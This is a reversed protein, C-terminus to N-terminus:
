EYYYPPYEGESARATLSERDVEYSLFWSGKEQGKSWRETFTIIYKEKGIEKASTEREIHYGDIMGDWKGINKPFDDTVTGEGDAAFAVADEKTFPPLPDSIIQFYGVLLGCALVPFLFFMKTSLQFKARVYVWRDIFAYFLAVIMGALALSMDQFLLGNALGFFGHLLVYLWTHKIFWKKQLCELAISVLNGYILVIAGIYMSYLALWGIFSAGLHYPTEEKTISVMYWFALIISPVITTVFTVTIKRKLLNEVDM